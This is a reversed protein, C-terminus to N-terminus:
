LYVSRGTADRLEELAGKGGAGARRRRRRRQTRSSCSSVTAWHCLSCILLCFWRLAALREPPPDNHASFTQGDHHTHTHSTTVATLIIAGRGLRPNRGPTRRRVRRPTRRAGAPLQVEPVLPRRPAAPGDARPAAAAAGRHPHTGADGPSSQNGTARLGDGMPPATPGELHKM